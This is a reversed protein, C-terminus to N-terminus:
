SVAVSACAGWGSSRKAPPKSWGSPLSALPRSGRKLEHEGADRVDPRIRGDPGERDSDGPGGVSRDDSCRPVRHCRSISAEHAPARSGNMIHWSPMARDPALPLRNAAVLERIPRPVRDAGRAAGRFSDETKTTRVINPLRDWTWRRPGLRHLPALDETPQDVLVM